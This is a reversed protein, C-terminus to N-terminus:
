FGTLKAKNQEFNWKCVLQSGIISYFIQLVIKKPTDRKNSAYFHTKKKKNLCLIWEM